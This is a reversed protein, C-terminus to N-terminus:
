IFAADMPLIDIKRENIVFQDSNSLIHVVLNGMSM